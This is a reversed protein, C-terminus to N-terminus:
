RRPTAVKRPIIKVPGMVGRELRELADATEAKAAAVNGLLRQSILELVADLVEDKNRYHRYIGSPVVGVERALGAMNLWQFGDRAILALAARAIQDQRIETNVKAARM